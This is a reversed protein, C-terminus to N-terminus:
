DKVLFYSFDFNYSAIPSKIYINIHTYTHMGTFLICLLVLDLICIFTNYHVHEHKLLQNRYLENVEVLQLSGPSSRTRNRNKKKRRQSPNRRKIVEEYDPPAEYM